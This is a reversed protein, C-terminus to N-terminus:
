FKDNPASIMFEAFFTAFLTVFLTAFLTAFLFIIEYFTPTAIFGTLPNNYHLIPTLSQLIFYCM